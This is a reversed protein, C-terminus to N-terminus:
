VVKFQVKYVQVNLEKINKEGSIACDQKCKRTWHMESSVYVSLACTNTCLLGHQWQRLYILRCPM